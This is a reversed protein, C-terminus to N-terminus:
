KNSKQINLSVNKVNENRLKSMVEVIYGYELHEDATLTVNELMEKPLKLIESHINEESIEKIDNGMKLFYKKNRNVIIEAKTEEKKDFKADSKPVSLQFQSYKNFTTAIMFFILLMFIVDILNLMSIEVNQRSRRNSFKM